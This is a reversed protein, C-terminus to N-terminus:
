QQHYSVSCAVAEEKVRVKRMWRGKVRVEKKKGLLRGRQREKLKIIFM